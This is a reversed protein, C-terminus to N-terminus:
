DGLSAHHFPFDVSVQLCQFLLFARKLSSWSAIKKRGIIIALCIGWERRCDGQDKVVFDPWSCFVHLVNETWIQHSAPLDQLGYHKPGGLRLWTHELCHTLSSSAHGPSYGKDYFELPMDLFGRFIFNLVRGQSHFSKDRHSNNTNRWM